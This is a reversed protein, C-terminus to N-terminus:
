PMSTVRVAELYVGCASVVIRGRGAVLVTDGPVETTGGTIDADAHQLNVELVRRSRIGLAGLEPAQGTGTVASEAKLDNSDVLHTVVGTLAVEGGQWRMARADYRLISGLLPGAERETWCAGHSVALVHTIRWTGAVQVPLRGQACLVGCCLAYPLLFPFLLRMLTPWLRASWFPGWREGGRRLSICPM